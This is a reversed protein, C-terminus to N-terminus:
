ERDGQRECVCVSQKIRRFTVNEVKGSKGDDKRELNSCDEIREYRAQCKTEHRNDNLIPGNM